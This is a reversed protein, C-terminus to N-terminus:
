IKKNYPSNFLPDIGTMKIFKNHREKLLNELKEILKIGDPLLYINETTREEKDSTVLNLEKAKYILERALQLRSAGKYELLDATLNTTMPSNYLNLMYIYCVFKVITYSYGINKYYNWYQYTINDMISTFSLIFHPIQLGEVQYTNYLRMFSNSLDKKLQIYKHESHM